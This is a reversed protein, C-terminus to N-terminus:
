VERDRTLIQDRVIIELVSVSSKRETGSAQAIPQLRLATRSVGVEPVGRGQGGAGGRRGM